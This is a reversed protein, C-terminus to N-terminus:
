HCCWKKCCGLRLLGYRRDACWIPAAETAEPNQYCVHSMEDPPALCKPAWKVCYYKLKWDKGVVAEWETCHKASFCHMAQTGSVPLATWLTGALCTTVVLQTFSSIKHRRWGIAMSSPAQLKYGATIQVAKADVRGM